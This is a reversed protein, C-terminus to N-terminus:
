LRSSRAAATSTSDIHRPGSGPGALWEVYLFGAARSRLTVTPAAPAGGVSAVREISAAGTGFADVGRVRLYYNGRDDPGSATDRKGVNGNFVDLPRAGLRSRRHLLNRREPVLTWTLNVSGGSASATLTLAGPPQSPPTDSLAFIYAAGPGVIFIDNLVPQRIPAGRRHVTNGAVAVGSRM